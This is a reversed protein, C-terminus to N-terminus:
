KPPDGEPLLISFTSGYGLRTKVEIWGGYTRAIEQCYYLGLGVGRKCKLSFYFPEFIHPLDEASIGCGKDSVSLCVFPGIRADHHDALYENTISVKATALTTRGKHPIADRANVVWNRLVQQLRSPECTVWLPHQCLELLLTEDLNMVYSNLVLDNVNSSSGPDIPYFIMLM